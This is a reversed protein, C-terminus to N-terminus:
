AAHPVNLQKVIEVTAKSKNLTYFHLGDVGNARLDRCQQTAHEVGAADGLAARVGFQEAAVPEVGLHPLALGGLLFLRQRRLLERGRPETGSLAFPSSCQRGPGAKWAIPIPM